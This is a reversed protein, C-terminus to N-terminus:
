CADDVAQGLPAPVEVPEGPVAVPTWTEAGLLLLTDRRISLDLPVDGLHEGDAMAYMDDGDVRVTRARLIEVCPARVFSGDYMSKLLKILTMRGVPHVITVDLLGDGPDAFPCIRMGGGFVGANGVAILMAKEDRRVGDVTLRYRLPTFRALEALADWGYSLSGLSWTRNNTRNNVRADYGTSVVSGVYRTDAGGTLAGRAVMLDVTRVSGSVIGEVAGAATTPVGMGRTLDNGTGAPIVGLAVPTGACANLGISAMGDGGMVLLLDGGGDAEGAQLCGHVAAEAQIKADTFDTTRLVQLVHRPLGRVLEATVQPLMRAAKGKGANPNVLLMM